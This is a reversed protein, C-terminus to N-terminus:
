ETGLVLDVLWCGRIHVGPARCHNLIYENECGADQLADALIPIAGFDRLEYMQRAIATVTSTLWSPNLVVPRFLIGFIDRLLTLQLEPGGTEDRIKKAEYVRWFAQRAAETADSNTAGSVANRVHSFMRQIASGDGGKKADVEARIRLHANHLVEATVSGDAFARVIDVVERYWQQPYLPEVAECCVCAFLRKKRDSAKGLVFELMRWPDTKELWSNDDM